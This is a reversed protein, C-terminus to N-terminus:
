ESVAETEQLREIAIEGVVVAELENVGVTGMEGVGEGVRVGVIEIVGVDETVWVFDNVGV